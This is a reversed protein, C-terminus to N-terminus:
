KKNWETEIFVGVDDGVMPVHQSMGWDSRKVVTNASFGLGPTKMFPKEAYAGNFTVNLTLPKTVGLMSLNGYIKGTKEGTKEIKTSEFKIEPYKGANFWQENKALVGDFDEDGIFDTRISTPDIIAILSSKTPDKPDFTLTANVRTFRATYNSLGMHNVKWTVSTHTPDTVYVGAPMSAIPTTQALAALPTIALASAVIFPKLM